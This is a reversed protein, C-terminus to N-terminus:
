KYQKYGSGEYVAMVYIHLNYKTAIQEVTALTVEHIGELDYQISDLISSDVGQMRLTHIFCLEPDVDDFNQYIQFRSLDFPSPKILWNFFGPTRRKKYRTNEDLQDIDIIKIGTIEAFSTIKGMEYGMDECIDTGMYTIINLLESLNETSFQRYETLEEGDPLKSIFGILIHSTSTDTNQMLDRLREVFLERYYESDNEVSVEMNHMDHLSLNSINMNKAYADIADVINMGDTSLGYEEYDGKNNIRNQTIENEFILNQFRIRNNATKLLENRRRMNEHKGFINSQNDCYLKVARKWFFRDRPNYLNNKSLVIKLQKSNGRWKNECEKYSLRAM